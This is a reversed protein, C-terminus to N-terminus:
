RLRDIFDPTCETLECIEEDSFGKKLMNLVITKRAEDRGEAKDDERWERIAQCMDYEEKYDKKSM